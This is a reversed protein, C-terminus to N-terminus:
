PRAAKKRQKPRRKPKEAPPPQWLEVKNGDPDLFWGFRGYPYAKPRGVITGGALEVQCLAEDVDDVVLNVMFPSRSPRFYRTRAPFISWVTAGNPPMTAPRFVAASPMDLPVALCDRYWRALKRPNRSRFFVGGVGLVRAM